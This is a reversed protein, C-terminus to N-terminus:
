SHQSHLSSRSTPGQPTFTHFLFGTQPLPISRSCCLFWFDRRHTLSWSHHVCTPPNM